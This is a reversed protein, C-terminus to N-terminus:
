SRDLGETFTMSDAQYGRAHRGTLRMTFRPGWEPGKRIEPEQARSRFPDPYGAAEPGPAAAEPGYGIEDPLTFTRMDYGPIHLYAPVNFAKAPIRVGIERFQESRLGDLESCVVQRYVPESVLLALQARDGLVLARRLPACDLLRGLTILAHGAFSHTRLTDLHMAVRLRIQMDPVRDRNHTALRADLERVFRGVMTVLDVDPPLVALEGDGTPRKLWLERDMGLSAAVEGLMRNGDLKIEEQRRTSRESYKQVDFGCVLRAVLASNPM